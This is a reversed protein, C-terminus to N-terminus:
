FYQIRVTTFRRIERYGFGFAVIEGDLEAVLTDREMEFVDLSGFDSAMEAGSRSEEVGDAAHARNVVAALADWDDPRGHRFSLGPIDLTPTLHPRGAAPAHTTSM